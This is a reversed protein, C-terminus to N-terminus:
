LGEGCSVIIAFSGDVNGMPTSGTSLDDAQEWLSGLCSKTPNTQHPHVAQVCGHTIPPILHRPPDLWWRPCVTVFWWHARHRTSAYLAWNGYESKSMEFLLFTGFRNWARRNINELRTTCSTEFTSMKPHGFYPFLDLKREIELAVSPRVSLPLIQSTPAIYILHSLSLRSFCNHNHTQQYHAFWDRPPRCSKWWCLAPPLCFVQLWM